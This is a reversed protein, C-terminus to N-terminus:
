NCLSVDAHRHNHHSNLPESGLTITLCYRPCKSSLQPGSFLSTVHSNMECNESPPHKLGLSQYYEMSHALLWTTGSGQIAPSCARCQWSLTHIRLFHSLHSPPACTHLHQRRNYQFRAAQAHLRGFSYPVNREGSVQFGTMLARWLHPLSENPPEQYPGPEHNM